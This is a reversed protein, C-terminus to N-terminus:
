LDTRCPTVAGVPPVGVAVLGAEQPRPYPTLQWFLPFLSVPDVILWGMTSYNGQNSPM